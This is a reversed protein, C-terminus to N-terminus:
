RPPELLVVARYPTAGYWAMRDLDASPVPLEFTDTDTDGDEPEIWPDDVRYVGDAHGHVLIWHPIVYGNFIIQDILVIGVGGAALTADLDAHTWPRIAVQVGLDRAEARFEAQVFEMLDRRYPDTAWGTLFPGEISAVLRTTLGRRAAACAVGFPDCGGPGSPAHITTAERWLAVETRRDVPAAPDFRRHALMLAVPGCTFGTTQSYYPLTRAGNGGDLTREFRRISRAPQAAHVAPDVARFGCGDLLAALAVAAPDADAVEIRVATCGREAAATLFGALAPAARDAPGDVSRIRAMLTGPRVVGAVAVGDAAFWLRTPREDIPPGAADM